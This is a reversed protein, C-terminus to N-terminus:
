WVKWAVCPVLFRWSHETLRSLWNCGCSGRKPMELSRRGTVSRHRRYDTGLKGTVGSEIVAAIVAADLSAVVERVAAKAAGLSSGLSM